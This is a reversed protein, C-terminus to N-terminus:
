IGSKYYYKGRMVEQIAHEIENTENNKLLYGSVDSEIAKKIYAEEDHMKIVIIKNNETSSLINKNATYEDLRSSLSLDMLVIDHEYKSAINVAEIGNDVEYIKDIYHIEEIYMKMGTRILM